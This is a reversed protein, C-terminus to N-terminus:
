LISFVGYFKGGETHFFHYFQLWCGLSALLHGSLEIHKLWWKLTVHSDRFEEEHVALALKFIGHFM